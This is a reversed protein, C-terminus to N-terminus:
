LYNISLKKLLIWVLVYVHLLLLNALRLTELSLHVCLQLYIM